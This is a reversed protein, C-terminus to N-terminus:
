PYFFWTFKKVKLFYYYGPHLKIPAETTDIYNMKWGPSPWVPYVKDSNLILFVVTADLEPQVVLIDPTGNLETRDCLNYAKPCIKVRM